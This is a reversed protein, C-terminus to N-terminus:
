SATEAVPRPAPRLALLSRTRWSPHYFESVPMPTAGFSAKFHEVGGLRGSPMFDVYQRGHAHCEALCAEKLATSVQHNGFRRDWVLYLESVLRRQSAYVLMGATEGAVTAVILRLQKAAHQHLSQFWRADRVLHMPRGQSQWYVVEQDYLQSFGAWDALSPQPVHRLQVGQKLYREVARLRGRHYQARLDALSALRVVLTPSAPTVTFGTGAPVPEGFPNTSGGCEGYRRWLAQYVARREGEALPGNAVLGGHGGGTGSRAARVFGGWVPRVGLVCLAQRGDAWQAFLTRPQGLGNAAVIDAWEPSHFFTAQPSHDLLSSWVSRPCDWSLRM